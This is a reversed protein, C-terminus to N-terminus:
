LSSRCSSASPHSSCVLEASRETHLFSSPLIQLGPGAIPQLPVPTADLFSQHLDKYPFPAGLMEEFKRMVVQFFNAVHQM